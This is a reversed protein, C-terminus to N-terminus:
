NNVDPKKLIHPNHKLMTSHPIEVINKSSYSEHNNDANINIIVNSGVPTPHKAHGSNSFISAQHM